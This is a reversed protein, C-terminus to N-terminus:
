IGTQYHRQGIMREWNEVYNKGLVMVTDMSFRYYWNYLMVGPVIAFPIRKYFQLKRVGPFFLFGVSVMLGYRFGKKQYEEILRLFILDKFIYKLKKQLYEKDHFSVTPHTSM